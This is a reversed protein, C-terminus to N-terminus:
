EIIENLTLKTYYHGNFNLISGSKLLIEKSSIAGILDINLLMEAIPYNPIVTGQVNCPTAKVKIFQKTM